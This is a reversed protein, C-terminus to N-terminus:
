IVNNVILPKIYNKAASFKKKVSVSCSYSCVASISTIKVVVEAMSLEKYLLVKVIHLASLEPEALTDFNVVVALGPLYERDLFFTFFNYTYIAISLEETHVTIISIMADTLNTLM